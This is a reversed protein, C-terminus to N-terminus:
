GGISRRLAPGALQRLQRIRELVAEVERLQRELLGRIPDPVGAALVDQYCQRAEEEVRACEDLIAESPRAPRFSHPIVNGDVGVTLQQWGAAALAEGLRRAFRARQLSYSNFLYKLDPDSEDEIAFRYRAEGALCCGYAARLLQATRIEEVSM